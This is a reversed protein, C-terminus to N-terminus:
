FRKLSIGAHYISMCKDVGKFLAKEVLILKKWYKNENKM